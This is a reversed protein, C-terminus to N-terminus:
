RQEKCFSTAMSRASIAATRCLGRQATSIPSPQSQTVASRTRPPLAVRTFRSRRACEAVSTIPDRNFIVGEALFSRYM